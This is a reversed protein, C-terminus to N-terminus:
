DNESRRRFIHSEFPSNAAMGFRKVWPSVPDPLFAGGGKAVWKLLDSPKGYYRGFLSTVETPPWRFRNIWILAFYAVVAWYLGLDIHLLYLVVAEVCLIAISIDAFYRWRFAPVDRGSVIAWGKLLVLLKSYRRGTYAAVDTADVAKRKEPDIPMKCALLRMRPGFLVEIPDVRAGRVTAHFITRNGNYVAVHSVQSETLYMILWAVWWGFNGVVVSDSEQLVMLVEDPLEREYAGCMIDSGTIRSYRGGRRRYNLYDLIAFIMRRIDPRAIEFVVVVRGRGRVNASAQRSPWVRPKWGEEIARVLISRVFKTGAYFDGRGTWDKWQKCARYFRNFLPERIVDKV